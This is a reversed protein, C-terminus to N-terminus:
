GVTVATATLLTAQFNAPSSVAPGYFTWSTIISGDISYAGCFGIEFVQLGTDISVPTGATIGPASIVIETQQDKIVQETGDLQHTWTQVTIKQQPGPIDPGSFVNGNVTIGNNGIVTDQWRKIEALEEKVQLLNDWTVPQRGIANADTAEQREERRRKSIASQPEYREDLLSM